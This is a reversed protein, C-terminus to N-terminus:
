VLDALFHTILDNNGPPYSVRVECREGQPKLNVNISQERRTGRIELFYYLIGPVILCLTLLVAVLRHLWNIRPLGVFTVIYGDRSKVRWNQATFFTEACALVDAPKMATIKTVLLDPM